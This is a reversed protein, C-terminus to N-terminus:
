NAAAHLQSKYNTGWMSCSSGGSNRSSSPTALPREEKGQPQGLLPVATKTAWKFAAVTVATCASTNRVAGVGEV